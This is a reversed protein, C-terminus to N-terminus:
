FLGKKMAIEWIGDLVLRANYVTKRFKNLQESLIFGNGGTIVVPVKDIDYEKEYQEIIHKVSGVSGMVNGARMASETTNGYYGEFAEVQLSPLKDTHEHLSNLQTQLGNLIAGGIFESHPNVINITMATGCDVTIYGKVDDIFMSKAGIVGVIRDMGTTEALNNLGVGCNELMERNLKICKIGSNVLEGIIADDKRVSSYVITTKGKEFGSIVNSLSNDDMDIIRIIGEEKSFLKIRTNGIDAVYNM